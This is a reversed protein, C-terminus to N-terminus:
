RPATSLWDFVPKLGIFAALCRDMFRSECAERPNAFDMWGTLSKRRLLDARPHDAAYPQPVRKLEPKSVRVDAPLQGILRALREGDKGAVRARFADLDGKYLEFVGTGATLREPELGFYWGPQSTSGTEAMFSIHLHANYPTKDRSFRVDRHIRFIKPRHPLGTMEELRGTVVRCFDEAPAKVAREYVAKNETFWDRNNNARLATLFDLAEGPFHSFGGGDM